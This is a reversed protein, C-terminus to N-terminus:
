EIELVPINKDVFLDINEAQLTEPLPNPKALM